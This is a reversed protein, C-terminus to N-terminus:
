ATRSNSDVTENVSQGGSLTEWQDTFKGDAFEFLGRAIQNGDSISLAVDQDNDNGFDAIDFCVQVSESDMSNAEAIAKILDPAISDNSQRIREFGFEWSHISAPVVNEIPPLSVVIFGENSYIKLHGKEDVGRAELFVKCHWLNEGKVTSLDSVSFESQIEKLGAIPDFFYSLIENHDDLSNSQEEGCVRSKLEFADNVVTHWDAYEPVSAAFEGRCVVGMKKVDRETWAELFPIGIRKEIEIAVNSKEVEPSSENNRQNRIVFWGIASAVVIALVLLTGLANKM